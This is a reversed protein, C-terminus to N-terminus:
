YNRFCKKFFRLAFSISLFKRSFRNLFSVYIKLVSVLFNLFVFFCIPFSEPM